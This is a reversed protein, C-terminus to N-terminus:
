CGRKMSTPYCHFVNYGDTYGYKEANCRHCLLRVNHCEIIDFIEEVGDVGRVAHSVSKHYRDAFGLHRHSEPELFDVLAYFITLIDIVGNVLHDVVIRSVKEETLQVYTVKEEGPVLM